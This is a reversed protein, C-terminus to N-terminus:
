QRIEIGSRPSRGIWETQAPSLTLGVAHGVGAHDVLRRLLAGWGCGVDLVRSARLAGSEAIHYDLKRMQAAALDDGECFLACSYVMDPGLVLQFFENSLDYHSAIAAPSAGAQRAHKGIQHNSADPM